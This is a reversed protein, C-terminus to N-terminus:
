VRQGVRLRGRRRAQPAQPHESPDDIGDVRTKQTLCGEIGESLREKTAELVRGLLAALFSRLRKGRQCSPHLGRHVQQRVGHSHQPYAQTGRNWVALVRLLGALLYPGLEVGHQHAQQGFPLVLAHRARWLRHVDELKRHLVRVSIHRRQRALGQLSEHVVQAPLQRGHALVQRPHEERVQRVPARLHPDRRKAGHPPQHVASRVLGDEIQHRKLVRVQHGDLREVPFILLHVVEALERRVAAHLHPAFKHPHNTIPHGRQNLSEVVFRPQERVDDGRERVLSLQHLLLSHVQHVTEPDLVLLLVLLIQLLRHIVHGLCETLVDVADTLIRQRQRRREGSSRPQSGADQYFVVERGHDVRHDTLHGAPLDLQPGLRGHQKAGHQHVEFVVRRLM